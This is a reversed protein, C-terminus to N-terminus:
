QIFCDQVTKEAVYDALRTRNEDAEDVALLIKAHLSKMRQTAGAAVEEGIHTSGVSGASPLRRHSPACSLPHVPPSTLEDPDLTEGRHLTTLM